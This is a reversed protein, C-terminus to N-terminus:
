APSFTFSVGYRILTLNSVARAASHTRKDFDHAVLIGRVGKGDVGEEEAIDGMYGLIQAIASGEAKGAKLEIVVIGKNDECTIDIFGSDVGREIGDDIITLYPDLLTINHRLAAQMDRELSLRQKKDETQQILISLATLLPVSTESREELFERYRMIASKYSALLKRLNGETEIKTPNPKGAREDESTYKLADIVTQYTGNAFHEDLSGYGKEVKTVRSRHTNQVNATYNQTALWKSFDPHM